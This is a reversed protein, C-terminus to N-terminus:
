SGDAGSSHRAVGTLQFAIMPLNTDHETIATGLTVELVAKFRTWGRRHRAIYDALVVDAEAPALRRALAPRPARAGVAVRVRPEAMVNRYWQSREGFGSAVVWTDTTPHGVVELVVRRRAGTRRGVHELMLMRSGFVFGLRARYLWLPARMLRRNGLLWSGASAVAGGERRETKRTTTM